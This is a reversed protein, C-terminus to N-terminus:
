AKDDETGNIQKLETPEASEKIEHVKQKPEEFSVNFTIPNANITLNNDSEYGRKKGKKNLLWMAAQLNNRDLHFQIVREADDIYIEDFQDYYYKYRPNEKINYYHVLRSIGCENCAVSLNGKCEKLILLLEKQKMTLEKDASIDDKWSQLSRSAM